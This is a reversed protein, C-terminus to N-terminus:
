KESWEMLACEIYLSPMDRDYIAEITFLSVNNAINRIFEKAYTLPIFHRMWLTKGINKFLSSADHCHGPYPKLLVTALFIKNQGKELCGIWENNMNLIGTARSKCFMQETQETNREQINPIDNVLPKSPDKLYVQCYVNLHTMQLQHNDSENENKNNTFRLFKSSGFPGVMPTTGADERMWFEKIIENCGALNRYQQWEPQRREDKFTLLYWDLNFEYKYQIIRSVPGEL